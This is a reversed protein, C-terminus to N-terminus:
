KRIASSAIYFWVELLDYRQMDFAISQRPGVLFTKKFLLNSFQAQKYCLEFLIRGRGTQRGLYLFTEHRM